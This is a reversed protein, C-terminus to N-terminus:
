CIVGYVKVMKRRTEACGCRTICSYSNMNTICIHWTHSSLVYWSM